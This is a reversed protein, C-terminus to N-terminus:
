CRDFIARVGSPTGIDILLIVMREASMALDIGCKKIVNMIKDVM